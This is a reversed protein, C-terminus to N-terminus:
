APVRGGTGAVAKRALRWWLIGMAAAGVLAGGVSAAAVRRDRVLRTADAVLRSGPPVAAAVARRTLGPPPAELDDRLSSVASVVERYRAMEGACDPCTALHVEFDESM